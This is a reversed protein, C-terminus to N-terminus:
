CGFALANHCVIAEDCFAEGFVLPNNRMKTWLLLEQLRVKMRFTQKAIEPLGQRDRRYFSKVASSALFVGLPRPSRLSFFTSNILVGMAYALTVM